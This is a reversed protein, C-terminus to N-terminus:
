IKDIDIPQLDDEDKEEEEYEFGEGDEGFDFDDGGENIKIHEPIEGLEKLERSEEEYYKMIVDGKDEGIQRLSILVIDGNNIWIRNKLKGRITAM